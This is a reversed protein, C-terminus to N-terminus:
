RPRTRGGARRRPARRAGQGSRARAGVPSSSRRLWEGYETENMQRSSLALMAEVADQESAELRFGNLELFVGALTLAV